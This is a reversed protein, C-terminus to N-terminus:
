GTPVTWSALEEAVKTFTLTGGYGQPVEFALYGMVMKGAPLGSSRPLKGAGAEADCNPLNQVVEQGQNTTFNWFFPNSFAVGYASQVAVTILLMEYGPQMNYGPCRPARKASLVTVVSRGAADRDVYSGGLKLPFPGGLTPAVPTPGSAQPVPVTQRELAAAAVSASKGVAVTVAGAVGLLVLMCGLIIAITRLARGRPPPYDEFSKTLKVEYEWGPYVNHGQQVPIREDDTIM